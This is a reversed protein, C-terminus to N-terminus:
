EKNFMENCAFHHPPKVGEKRGLYWARVKNPSAAYIEQLKKQIDPHIALLYVIFFLTGSITETGLFHFIISQAVIDSDSLTLFFNDNFFRM